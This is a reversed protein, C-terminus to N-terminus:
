SPQPYEVKIGVAKGWLEHRNCEALAQIVHGKPLQLTLTVEPKQWSPVFTIYSILQRDVFVRMWSIHHERLNPHNPLRFTAKFPRAAEITEPLAIEVLHERKHQSIEEGEGALKIPRDELDPLTFHKDAEAINGVPDSAPDGVPDGASDGAPDKVPTDKGLATKSFVLPVALAGALLKRRDIMGM